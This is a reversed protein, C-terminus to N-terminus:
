GANAQLETRADDIALNLEAMADASGGEVDPHRERAFKKYYGDAIFLQTERPLEAMAEMGLVERWPKKHYVGAGEPPPLAAFGDFSRKMMHGGGHRELSRLAEVALALSRINAYPASYIDQAMVMPKGEFEFYVAVGADIRTDKLDEYYLGGDRRPRCNTSVVVNAAGLKELEQHLSRWAKDPTVKFRSYGMAGPITARPWGSPWRLPYAETM